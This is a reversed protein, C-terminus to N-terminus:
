GVEPPDLQGLTAVLRGDDRAGELLLRGRELSFRLYRDSFGMV